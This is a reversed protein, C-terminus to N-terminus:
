EGAFRVSSVIRKFSSNFKEFSTHAATRSLGGGLCTIGVQDKTRTYSSYFSETYMNKGLKSSYISTNYFLTRANKTGLKQISGYYNSVKYGTESKLAAVLNKQELDTMPVSNIKKDLWDQTGSSQSSAVVTLSCNAISGDDYIEIRLALPGIAFKEGTWNAPASISVGREIDVFRKEQDAISNKSLLLVGLILYSTLVKNINRSM